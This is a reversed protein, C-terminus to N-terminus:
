HLGERDLIHTYLDIYRQGGIELNYENQAIIRCQSAMRERLVADDLLQAIAAALAKSDGVPALLGTTGSRVMDPIGGADFGVVPTGCAMAELATQGFAEQMSPIVFMDAASYIAAMLRDSKVYGLHLHRLGIELKPRSGGLTLLFIDHERPLLALAQMLEVFGKRRNDISDAVFLMVLAQEPIGLAIKMARGDCPTFVKTDLSLPIFSVPMGAFLASAKVQSEMWRSTAVVHMKKAGFLSFAKAKRKRVAFSLDNQVQSGLLPCQGCEKRFRGCGMDYHCGGTFPNMDHLTWVIPRNVKAFFSSYDVMGAIWHLHVLDCEPMQRLVDDAYQSRDDSFLEMGDPRTTWYPTYDHEIRVVRWRYLLRSKIDRPVHFMRICERDSESRLTYITSDCGIRVLGDHIRGVARAAGGSCLTNVHAIKADNRDDAM